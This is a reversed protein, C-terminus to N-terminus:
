VESPGSDRVMGLLLLNCFSCSGVIEFSIKHEGLEWNEEGVKFGAKDCLCKGELLLDWCKIRM